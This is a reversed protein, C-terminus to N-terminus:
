LTIPLSTTLSVSPPAAHPVEEREDCLEREEETHDQGQADGEDRIAEEGEEKRSELGQWLGWPRHCLSVHFSKQEYSCESQEYNDSTNLLALSASGM